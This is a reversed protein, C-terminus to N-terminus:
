KQCKKSIGFFLVFLVGYTVVKQKELYWVLSKQNQHLILNLSNKNRNVQDSVKNDLFKLLATIM